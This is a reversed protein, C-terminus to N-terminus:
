AAQEQTTPTQSITQQQSLQLALAELQHYYSRAKRSLLAHLVLAPIAVVLGLETTILAQAIGGSVVQPDGSGFLTMMNFTEIMGSVTGLLGLLPAVAATVAIAGLRADLTLRSHQLVAFLADDRQQGVAFRASCDALKSAFGAAPLLSAQPLSTVPVAPLRWLQWAKHLAILLAVLAFLLIPVAWVGGKSVHSFASEHQNSRLLAKNLSPDFLLPARQQQQLQALASSDSFPLAVTPTDAPDRSHQLLGGQQQQALWYWSVPGAQLVRANILEGNPQIIDRAQWNPYLSQQLSVAFARSAQLQSILSNNDPVPLQQQRIFSALLNQQYQQQDQWSKLRETLQNLGLTSEDEARRAVATKERLQQVQQQLAQYQSVLQQQQQSIQQETSALAQQAQQIDALVSASVDAALAPVTFCALVAALPLLANFRATVTASIM